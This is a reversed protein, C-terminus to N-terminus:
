AREADTRMRTVGSYLGPALTAALAAALRNPPWPRAILSRVFYPRASEPAGGVMLFTALTYFFAARAKRDLGLELPRSNALRECAAVLREPHDSIGGAEQSATVLVDDVRTFGSRVGLRLWLDWDQLRPLLPDFGGVRELATRRIVATSTDIFNGHVLIKLPAPPAGANQLAPVTSRGDSTTLRRHCYAIDADATALRRIMTELFDSEWVDDDDLFGVFEARGANLGVNRAAAAGRGPDLRIVRVRSDIAGIRALSSAIPERSGDDVVFLEWDARTQARVSEVARLTLDHRDRTPIVM